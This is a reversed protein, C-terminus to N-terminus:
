NATHKGIIIDIGSRIYETKKRQQIITGDVVIIVEIEFVNWNVSTLYCACKHQCGKLFEDIQEKTKDKDKDVIKFTKRSCIVKHFITKFSSWEYKKHNM